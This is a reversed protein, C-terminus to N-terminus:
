QQPQCVWQLPKATGQAAKTGNHGAQLCDLLHSAHVHEAGVLCTPLLQPQSSFNDAITAAQSTGHTRMHHQDCQEANAQGHLEATIHFAFVRVGYQEAPVSV